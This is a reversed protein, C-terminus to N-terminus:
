QTINWFNWEGASPPGALVFGRGSTADEGAVVQCQWNGNLSMELRPGEAAHVVSMSFLVAGVLISKM